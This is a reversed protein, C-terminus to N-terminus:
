WDVAELQKMPEDENLDVFVIDMPYLIDSCNLGISEYSGQEYTSFGSTCINAEGTHIKQYLDNESGSAYEINYDMYNAFANILEIDYGMMKKTAMDFYSIPYYLQTVACTITKGKREKELNNYVYEYDPDTMRKVLEKYENTEKYEKLFANFENRLEEDKPSFIAIIDVTTVPKKVIKVGSIVRLIEKASNIDIALADIRKYRLAMIADAATDYRYLTMDKRPTLFYDSSWALPTGVRRGDLNDVDDVPRYSLMESRFTCGTFLISLSFMILVFLTKIYKKM